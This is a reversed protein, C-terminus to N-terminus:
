AFWFQAKGRNCVPYVLFIFSLLFSLLLTNRPTNERRYRFSFLHRLKFPYSHFSFRDCYNGYNINSIDWSHFYFGLNIKNEIWMLVCSSLMLQWEVWFISWLKGVTDVSPKTTEKVKNFINKLLGQITYEYNPGTCSKKKWITTNQILVLNWAVQSYM